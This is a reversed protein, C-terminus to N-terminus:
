IAALVDLQVSEGRCGNEAEPVLTEQLDCSKLDPLLFHFGCALLNMM